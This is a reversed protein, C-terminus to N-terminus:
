GREQRVWHLLRAEILLFARNLAYGVLVLLFISAYMEAARLSYQMTMLYFGVGSGGAIMEAVVTVILALGLSIRMGSTVFPSAAPLVVALITALRGRRFTRATNLLTPDVSRVGEATNILVPFFTAFAVLTIKLAEDIGLLLILPPVLAPVPLPRLFELSPSLLLRALGSLGVLVGVVLGSLAGILFGVAVVRLSSGMVALIEQWNQLFAVVIASIPPWSRSDVWFSASIEWLLLLAGILAFGSGRTGALGALRARAGEPATRDPALRSVGGQAGDERSLSM